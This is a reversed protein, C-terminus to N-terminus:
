RLTVADRRLLKSITVLTEGIFFGWTRTKLTSSTKQPVALYYNPPSPHLM